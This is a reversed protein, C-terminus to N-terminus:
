ASPEGIDIDLESVDLEGSILRPLLLDRTMRLVANREVANRVMALMPWAIEEFRQVLSDDPMLLPIREMDQKTVAKFITGGGMSDLVQFRERLQALTFALRSRVPRIASVGRGVVLRTNAVNIRGVPARVSFLIDWEEAIRASLTCYVRHAPFLTGFDSVGQHFPLGDGNQNYFESKPSQGMVLECEDGLTTAEWGKPLAGLPSEVMDVTEHGPFRFEVFWERYLSRATEELIAIRRANNEILDDYASLIAAIRRQVDLPPRAFKFNEIRTPATHLIKAGTATEYLYRNFQPSLALWYLYGLDLSDPETVQLLGLRQNHLYTEGDQPIRGPVGLIEGGATQCTMVLLVDGPKLEYDRPYPGTYRQIKTTTFRFGGTYQFNVINVVVPADAADTTMFEGKFAFGHKVKCGDGLRYGSQWAQTPTKRPRDAVVM